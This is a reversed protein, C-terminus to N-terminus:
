KIGLPRFATQPSILSLAGPFRISQWHEQERVDELSVERETKERNENESWALM